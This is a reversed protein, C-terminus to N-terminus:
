SIKYDGVELDKKEKNFKNLLNEYTKWEMYDDWKEFEEKTANKIKREFENFSSSYKQEFFKTKEKSKHIEYILNAYYLDRVTELNITTM